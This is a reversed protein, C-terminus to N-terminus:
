CGGDEGKAGVSCSDQPRRESGLQGSELWVLLRLAQLCRAPNRFFCYNHMSDIVPEKTWSRQPPYDLEKAPLQCTSSDHCCSCCSCCSVARACSGGAGGDVVVLQLRWLAPVLSSSSWWLLLLLFLLSSMLLPLLLLLLLLFLCLSLFAAVASVAVGVVVVVVVM